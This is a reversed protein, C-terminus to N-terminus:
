KFPSGKPVALPRRTFAQVMHAEVTSEKWTIAPVGDVTGIEHDGLMEKIENEVADLAAKVYKQDAKLSARREVLDAMRDRDVEVMSGPEPHAYRMKLAESTSESGDVAPPTNSRVLEWFLREQEMLSEIVADDRDVEIYRPNQGGVLAAFWLKDLGTVALEHMGQLMYHAPVNGDEWEDLQYLGVNKCEVVAEGDETLFDLNVQAWPWRKSRLLVPYRVVQIGTDEAFGEGIARELRRGWRMPDTDEKDPLEGRKMLWLSYASEYPSLGVAAAADSGGIGLKRTDLWEELSTQDTNPIVVDANERVTAISM